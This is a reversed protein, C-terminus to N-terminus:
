LQEGNNDEKSNGNKVETLEDSSMTSSTSDDEQDPLIEMTEKNETAEM